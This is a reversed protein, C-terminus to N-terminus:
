FCSGAKYQKTRPRRKKRCIGRRKMEVFYEAEEDVVHKVWGEVEASPEILSTQVTGGKFTLCALTGEAFGERRCLEVPLALTWTDKELSVTRLEDANEATELM